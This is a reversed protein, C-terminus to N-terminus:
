SEDVVEGFRCIASAILYKGHQAPDGLLVDGGCVSLDPGHSGWGHPKRPMHALTHGAEGRDPSSKSPFDSWPPLLVYALVM